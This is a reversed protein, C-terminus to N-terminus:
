HLPSASFNEFNRIGTPFASPNEWLHSLAIRTLRPEFTRAQNWLYTGDANYDTWAFTHYRLTLEDGWSRISAGRYKKMLHLTMTNPHPVNTNTAHRFINGAMMWWTLKVPTGYSDRLPLRFSPDMVRAANRAPDTFLSLTYTCEYQAVDMGDWIATDSGLVLYVVGQSFLFQSPVLLLLIAFHTRISRM